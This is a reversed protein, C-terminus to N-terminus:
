QLVWLRLGFWKKQHWSKKKSQGSVKTYKLSIYKIKCGEILFDTAKNMRSCNDDWNQGKEDDDIDTKLINLSHNILNMSESYFIISNSSNM